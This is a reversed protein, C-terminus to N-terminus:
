SGFGYYEQLLELYQEWPGQRLRAVRGWQQYFEQQFQDMTYTRYGVWPGKEWIWNQMLSWSDRVHERGPLLGHGSGQPPESGFDGPIGPSSPGGGAAVSPLNQSSNSAPLYQSGYGQAPLGYQQGYVTWGVSSPNSGGLHAGYGLGTGPGTSELDDGYSRQHSQPQHPFGAEPGGHFATQVAPTAQQLGAQSAQPTAQSGQALATTAWQPLKRLHPPWRRPLSHRITQKWDYEFKEFNLTIEPFKGKMLSFAKDLPFKSRPHEPDASGRLEIVCQIWEPQWGIKKAM